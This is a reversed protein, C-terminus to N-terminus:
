APEWYSITFYSYIDPQVYYQLVQFDQPHFSGYDKCIKFTSYM